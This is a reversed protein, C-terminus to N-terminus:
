KFLTFRFDSVQGPYGPYGGEFAEKGVAFYDLSFYPGNMPGWLDTSQLTYLNKVTCWVKGETEAEALSWACALQVPEQADRFQIDNTSYAQECYGSCQGDFRQTILRTNLDKKENRTSWIHWNVEKEVDQRMENDWSRYGWAKFMVAFNYGPIFNRNYLGHYKVYFMGWSVERDGLLAGDSGIREQNVWKTDALPCEIYEWDVTFGVMEHVPGCEGVNDSPIEEISGSGACSTVLFAATILLLANVMAKPSAQIETM